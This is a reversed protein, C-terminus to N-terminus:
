YYKKPLEVWIWYMSQHLHCGCVSSQLNVNKDLLLWPM